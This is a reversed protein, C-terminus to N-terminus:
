PRQLAGLGGRLLHEGLWKPPLGAEATALAAGSGNCSGPGSPSYFRLSRRNSLTLIHLKPPFFLCVGSVPNLFEVNQWHDDRM